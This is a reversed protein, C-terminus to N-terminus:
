VCCRSIATQINALCSITTWGMVSISGRGGGLTDSKPFKSFDHMSYSTATAFSTHMTYATVVTAYQAVIKTLTQGNKL